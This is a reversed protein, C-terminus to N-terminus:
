RTCDERGPWGYMAFVRCRRGFIPARANMVRQETSHKVVGSSDEVVHLTRAHRQLAVARERPSSAYFKDHERHFRSLNLLADLLPSHQATRDTTTM